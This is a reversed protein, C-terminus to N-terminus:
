TIVQVMWGEGYLELDNLAAVSKCKNITEIMDETEENADKHLRIANITYDDLEGMALEEHLERLVEDNERIEERCEAILYEKVKEVCEKITEARSLIPLNVNGFIVKKM